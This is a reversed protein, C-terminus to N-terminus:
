KKSRWDPYVTKWRRLKDAREKAGADANPDTDALPSRAHERLEEDIEEIATEARRLIKQIAQQANVRQEPALRDIHFRQLSRLGGLIYERAAASRNRLKRLERLWFRNLEIIEITFSGAETKAKLRVGDLEFHDFYRDRDAKYFQTGNARMDDSPEFDGKFRNCFKCSYMLNDYVVELDPRKSKPEFHDIEFSITQAETECVTCYSCSYVFDNRLSPLYDHYDSEQLVVSRKVDASILNGSTVRKGKNSNM